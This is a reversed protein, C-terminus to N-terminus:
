YVYVFTIVHNKIVTHKPIKSLRVVCLREEITIYGSCSQFIFALMFCNTWFLLLLDKWKKWYSKEWMKGKNDKQERKKDGKKVLTSSQKCVSRDGNDARKKARKKVKTALTM